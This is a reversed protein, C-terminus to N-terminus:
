KTTAKPYKFLRKGFEMLSSQQLDNSRVENKKLNKLLIGYLFQLEHEIQKLYDGPMIKYGILFRKNVSTKNKYIWNTYM